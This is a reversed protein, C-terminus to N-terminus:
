LWFSLGLMYSPLTLHEKMHHESLCLICLDMGYMEFCNILEDSRSGAGRTKIFLM